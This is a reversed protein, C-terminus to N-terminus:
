ARGGSASGTYGGSFKPEFCENATCTYLTQFGAKQLADQASHKEAIQAALEQNAFEQREMGQRLDRLLDVNEFRLRLSEAVTGYLRHSIMGMMAVYVVLMGGMALHLGSGASVLRAAYPLLTPILFVLYAGRMASLTSIAGSLMGMLVFALFVQHVYSHATFFFFGAFGWLMGNAAVGYLYNRGWRISETVSHNRLYARRQVYRAFAVLLIVLLTRLGSFGSKTPEGSTGIRLRNM